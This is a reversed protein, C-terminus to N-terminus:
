KTTLGYKKSLEFYMRNISDINSKGRRTRPGSSANEDQINNTRNEIVEESSGPSRNPWSPRNRLRWSIAFILEFNARTHLTDKATNRADRRNPPVFLTITSMWFDRLPVIRFCTQDITTTASRWIREGRWWGEDGNGGSRRRKMMGWCWEGGGRLEAYRAPTEESSSKFM